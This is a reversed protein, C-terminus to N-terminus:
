RVRYSDKEYYEYGSAYGFDYPVEAVIMDSLQCPYGTNSWVDKYNFSVCDANRLCRNICELFNRVKYSGLLHNFLAYNKMDHHPNVFFWRYGRTFDIPGMLCRYTVKLYKYTGVCPEKDVYYKWHSPVSCNRENTCLSRAETLVGSTDCGQFSTFSPLNERFACRFQDETRGYEAEIIRVYPYDVPCEVSLDDHDQCAYLTIDNLPRGGLCDYDVQLYKSSISSCPDSSSLINGDVPISCTRQDQCYSEVIAQTDSSRCSTTADNGDAAPCVYSSSGVQTRGYFADNISIYTGDPCSLSLEADLGECGILSIEGSPLEDKCDFTVELQMKHTTCATAGLFYDDAVVTCTVKNDCNAAVVSKVDQSSCSASNDSPSETCWSPSTATVPKYSASTIEIFRNSGYCAIQLNEEQCVAYTSSQTNNGELFKQCTYEVELYKFEGQCPDASLSNLIDSAVDVSCQRENECKEKVLNVLTSTDAACNTDYTHNSWRHPCHKGDERRGYFVNEIQLYGIENVACSLELLQDDCAMAKVPFPGLHQVTVECIQISDTMGILQIGIYRGRMTHNCFVANPGPQASSVVDGCEENFNIDSSNGISVQFNDLTSASNADDCTYVTVVNIDYNAQLDVVWWPEYEDASQTCWGESCDVELIYDTTANVVESSSSLSSMNASKGRAFDSRYRECSFRIDLYKPQEPCPDSLVTAFEVNLRCTQKNDCNKQVMKLVLEQDLECDLSYTYNNGASCLGEEKRGYFAKHIKISYDAQCAIALEEDDCELAEEHGWIGLEEGPCLFRVEYDKCTGSTQDSDYCLLGGENNLSCPRQLVQGLAYHSQGDSVQRCEADQPDACLNSSM